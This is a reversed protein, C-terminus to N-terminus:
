YSHQMLVYKHESQCKLVTTCGPESCPFQQRQQGSRSSYQSVSRRDSATPVMDQSESPTSEVNLDRIQDIAETPLKQHVHGPENSLVSRTPQTYYGSESAPVNSGIDSCPGQRYPGYSNETRLFNNRSDIEQPNRMGM